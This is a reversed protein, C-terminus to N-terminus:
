VKEQKSKKKRVTSSGYSLLVQGRIALGQGTEATEKEERVMCPSCFMRWRAVDRSDSSHYPAYESEAEFSPSKCQMTAHHVHVLVGCLGDGPNLRAMYSCRLASGTSILTYYAHGDGVGLGSYMSRSILAFRNRDSTGRRDSKSNRQPPNIPM